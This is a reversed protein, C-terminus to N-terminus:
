DYISEIESNLSETDLSYGQTDDSDDEIYAKEPLVYVNAGFTENSQGDFTNDKDIIQASLGTDGSIRTINHEKAYEAESDKLLDQMLTNRLLNIKIHVSANVTKISGIHACHKSTRTMGVYMLNSCLMYAHASPTVLLVTDASSGQSKHITMCYGLEINQMDNKDYKVVVGDFDLLVYNKGIEVIRGIEGNAIFTEHRRDDDDDDYDDDEDYFNYSGFTGANPECVEAHYNNSTQMVIDNQYFRTENVEIFIGMMVGIRNAINQIERNLAISGYMGKKYASLVIIDEPKKGKKLLLGYIETVRRIIYENPTNVFFYDKNKGFIQMVGTTESPKSLYPRCERVDTAVAMLGGEGYRFVQTLTTIPIIGSAIFDHLLNGCSVSPLQAHDGVLLLRTRNFNIAELVRRFLFIDAMSFEDLVVVDVPIPNSEDFEWYDPPTFGLGRHITTAKEGAYESLVKAAKGTPSMLKFTAHNDKLMEIIAHITFSKGTGAPGNLISISNNSIMEMARIQEDSLTVGSINEYDKWDYILIPETNKAEIVCDAIYKETIYTHANAVVNRVTDFYISANNLCDSFHICCEPTTEECANRLDDAKIYTNGNHENEKLLYIINSLCRQKSTLLDFDFDIAREDPPLEKLNRAIDLLMADAKKFSIGVLNCLCDYPNKSLKRKILSVTLYEDYLKKLIKFSFLGNFTAILEFLGFNERIKRVVVAFRKEKIGKTKKLDIDDLRNEIVRDIIDPYVDYLVQAQSESLIETLFAFVGRETTPRIKGVGIVEYGIGYKSVKEIATIEYYSGIQLEQMDGSISVTGYKNHKIDPYHIEDVDVSYVKYGDTSYITKNVVGGFNVQKDTFFM